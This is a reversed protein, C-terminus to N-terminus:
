KGRKAMAAFEPGSALSAAEINRVGMGKWIADPDATGGFRKM